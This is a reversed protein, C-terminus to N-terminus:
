YEKRGELAQKLTSDDAYQIDGGTPMGQGLRSIKLANHSSRQANIKNKLYLATAEGEM